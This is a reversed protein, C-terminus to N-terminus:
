VKLMELLVEVRTGVKGAGLAIGGACNGAVAKVARGDIDATLQDGVAFVGGCEVPAVVDLTVECVGGDDAGVQGTVGIIPHDVGSAQTITNDKSGVRIFRYPNVAGDARFPLIETRKM